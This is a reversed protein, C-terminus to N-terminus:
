RKIIKKTILNGDKSYIMVTYVGASLTSIDVTNEGGHLVGYIREAAKIDAIAFRAEGGCKIKIYNEAPVPYIEAQMHQAQDISVNKPVLEINVTETSGTMAIEEVRDNYGDKSFKVSYTGQKICRNYFGQSDTYVQSSDRDHDSIEIKVGDLHKGTVSDTVTGKFGQQLYDFFVFLSKHLRVWYLPLKSSQPIYDDSLELTVEPCHAYYTSWDQRSGGIVYWDGGDIVGSSNVSKFYTGSEDQLAAVFDKGLDEFWQRDAHTKVSSTYKDFPYNFVESGTHLNCSMHFRHQLQYDMFAQTEPQTKKGDSNNKTAIDKYNRNLDVYNANYRVPNKIKGDTSNNWTGDPNAFPNIYIQINDLLAAFEEKNATLTDILRMLMVAGTLENGHMAASYFFRPKPLDAKIQSTISMCLILRGNLSTGITDLRCIDENQQAINQMFSIYTDYDPYEDWKQAYGTLWILATLVILWVRKM